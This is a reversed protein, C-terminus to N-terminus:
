ARGAARIPTSPIMRRRSQTGHSIGRPCQKSNATEQFKSYAQQQNVAIRIAIM